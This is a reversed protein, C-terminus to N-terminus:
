ATVAIAVGADDRFEEAGFVCDATLLDALFEQKYQTQVRPKMQECLILADRHFLAAIRADGTATPCHSTVYVEVGYINGLRGNRIVNASGGEGVFAQETFRALGMLTNRAVPPIVLNRNSMPVDADDLTQIVKRIAADTIAAENTGTYLTSGDSGIVAKDWAATGAGGKWKSTLDHLYDDVVRALAYGGDETYVGRMSNNSQVKAIDEILRSYEWHQNLNVDVGTGTHAILTVQAGASKASAAARTFGPFHVVDGKKGVVSFKKVLNAMVLNKKYTAVIEDSWIEPVFKSTDLASKSVYNTNDFTAM